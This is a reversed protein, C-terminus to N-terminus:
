FRGPPSEFGRFFASRRELIRRKLVSTVSRVDITLPAAEPEELDVEAGGDGPRWLWNIIRSLSMERSRKKLSSQDYEGVTFVMTLRVQVTTLMRNRLRCVWVFSPKAIMRSRVRAGCRVIEASVSGDTARVGEARVLTAADLNESVETPTTVSLAASTEDAGV